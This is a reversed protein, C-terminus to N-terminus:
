VSKKYQIRRFNSQKNIANGKEQSQMKGGDKMKAHTKKDQKTEKEKKQKRKSENLHLIEGKLPEKKKLLIRLPRIKSQKQHADAKFQRFISSNERM